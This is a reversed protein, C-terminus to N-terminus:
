LQWSAWLLRCAPCERSVSQCTQGQLCSTGMRDVTSEVKSQSGQCKVPNGKRSQSGQSAARVKSQSGKIVPQKSKPQKRSARMPSARIRRTQRDTQRDTQRYCATKNSPGAQSMASIVATHKKACVFHGLSPSKLMIESYNQCKVDKQRPWPLMRSSSWRTPRPRSDAHM